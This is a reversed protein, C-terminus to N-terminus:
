RASRPKLCDDIVTIANPPLGTLAVADRSGIFEAKDWYIRAAGRGVSEGPWIYGFELGTQEVSGRAGAALNWITFSHRKTGLNMISTVWQGTSVTFRAEKLHYPSQNVIELNITGWASNSHGWVVDPNKLVRAYERERPQVGLSWSDFQIRTACVEFRSLALEKPWNNTHLAKTIQPSIVRTVLFWYPAGFILVALMMGVLLTSTSLTSEFGDCAGAGLKSKNRYKLTFLTSLPVILGFFVSIPLFVLFYILGFIVDIWGIPRFGFLSLCIAQILSQGLGLVTIVVLLGFIFVIVFAVM